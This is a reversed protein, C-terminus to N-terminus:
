YREEEAAVSVSHKSQPTPNEAASIRYQAVPCDACGEGYEAGYKGAGCNQCTASGKKKSLKGIPCIDCQTGTNAIAASALGISCKVCVLNGTNSQHTGPECPLCYAMGQVSQKYGAPCVKCDTSVDAGIKESYRGSNCM